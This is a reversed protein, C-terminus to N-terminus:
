PQPQGSLARSVTGAIARAVAPPDPLWTRFRPKWATEAHDGWYDRHWTLEGDDTVYVTGGHGTRPDTVAIETTVDFCLDDPYVNLDVTFGAARLDLGAIGKFTISSSVAHPHRPGPQGSLFAAALGAVLHPDAADGAFPSWRLEADASDSVVLTCRAAHCAISLRRRDGSTPDPGTVRLGADALLAATLHALEGTKPTTGAAANMEEVTIKM